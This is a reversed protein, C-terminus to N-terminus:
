RRAKDKGAEEAERMSRAEDKTQPSAKEAAEDVKGEEIFERTRENYRRAADTNGEGQMGDDTYPKDTSM